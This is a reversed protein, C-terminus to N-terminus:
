CLQLLATASQSLKGDSHALGQRKPIGHCRFVFQISCLTHLNSCLLKRNYYVRVLIRAALHYENLVRDMAALLRFSTLKKEKM